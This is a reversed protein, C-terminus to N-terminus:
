GINITKVKEKAPVSKKELVVKLIGSTYTADVATTDVDDALSFSRKFSQYDYEQRVLSKDDEKQEVKGTITLKDDKISVEFQEKSLGPAAMSITYQKDSELINVAPTKHVVHAGVLDNFNTNFIEDLVNTLVRGSKNHTM